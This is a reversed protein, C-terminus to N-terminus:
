GFFFFSASTALQDAPINSDAVWQLGLGKASKAPQLGETIGEIEGDRDDIVDWQVSDVGQWCQAYWEFLLIVYNGKELAFNYTTVVATKETPLYKMRFQHLKRLTFSIWTVVQRTAPLHRPSGVERWTGCSVRLSTVRDFYYPHGVEGSNCNKKVNNLVGKVGRRKFM